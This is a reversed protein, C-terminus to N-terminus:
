IKNFIEILNTDLALLFKHLTSVDPSVKGNEINSIVKDNNTHGYILESLKRMSLGKEERKRKLLGGVAERLEQSEIIM